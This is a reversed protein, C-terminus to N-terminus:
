RWRGQGRGLSGEDVDDAGGEALPAGGFLDDRGRQAAQGVAPRGDDVSAGARHDGVALPEQRV